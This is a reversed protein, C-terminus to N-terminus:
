ELNAAWPLILKVLSSCYPCGDSLLSDFLWRMPQRGVADPVLLTLLTAYQRQGDAQSHLGRLSRTVQILLCHMNDLRSFFLIGGLTCVGHRASLGHM